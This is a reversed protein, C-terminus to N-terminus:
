RKRKPLLVFLLFLFLILSLLALAIFIFFLFWQWPTNKIFEPNIFYIIFFIGFWIIVINALKKALKPDITYKGLRGVRIKNGKKASGRISIFYLIIFLFFALLYFDPQMIMNYVLM